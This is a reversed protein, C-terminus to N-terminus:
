VINAIIEAAQQFSVAQITGQYHTELKKHYNELATFHEEKMGKPHMNFSFFIDNNVVDFKNLYQKTCQFMKEDNKSCDLYYFRNNFLKLSNVYKSYRPNNGIRQIPYGRKKGSGATSKKNKITNQVYTILNKIQYGYTNVANFTCSAIPIEFIGQNNKSPNQIDKDLYYNAMKPVMSFDIENVNSKIVFDPVISSDIVFGSNILARIVIDSNPQLGYGGSRFAVCQYNSNVERLLNQLYTRSTVLNELIKSYLIEKNDDLKGLLFYDMNITYKNESIQTYNWHPHVHSQVDHGRQIANKLQEEAKKPFSLLNQRRYCAISFVDAFLTLPIHLNEVVNLLNNTPNILVESEDCYNGGLFLEYDASYLIYITM